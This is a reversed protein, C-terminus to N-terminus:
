LLRCVQILITNCLKVLDYFFGSFTRNHDRKLFFRQDHESLYVSGHAYLPYEPILDGTCRQIFTGSIFKVYTSLISTGVSSCYGSRMRFINLDCQPQKCIGPNCVAIFVPTCIIKGTLSHHLVSSASLYEETVTICLM